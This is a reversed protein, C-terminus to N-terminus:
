KDGGNKDDIEGFRWNWRRRILGETEWVSMEWEREIIKLGREREREVVIDWTAAVRDMWVERKRGVEPDVCSLDWVNNFGGVKEELFKGDCPLLEGLTQM